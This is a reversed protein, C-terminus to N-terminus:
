YIDPFYGFGMSHYGLAWDGGALSFAGGISASFWQFCFNVKEREASDWMFIELPLFIKLLLPEYFYFTYIDLRYFMDSYTM